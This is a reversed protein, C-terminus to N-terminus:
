ISLCTSRWYLDVYLQLLLTYQTTSYILISLLAQYMQRFFPCACIKSLCQIWEAKLPTEEESSSKKTILGSILLWLAMVVNVLQVVGAIVFLSGILDYHFVLLDHTYPYCGRDHLDTSGLQCSQNTTQNGCCSPPLASNDKYYSTNLWDAPTNVGCCYFQLVNTHIHDHPRMQHLYESSICRHIRYM